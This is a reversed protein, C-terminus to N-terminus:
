AAPMRLQEPRVMWGAVPWGAVDDKSIFACGTAGGLVFIDLWSVHNALYFVDRDLRKGAIRVRAGAARAALRLFLRPMPSRRGLLRFALHPPVCLLTAALLAGIRRTRRLRDPFGTSAM